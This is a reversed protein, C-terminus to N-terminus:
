GAACEGSQRPDSRTRVAYGSAGARSEAGGPGFRSVSQFGLVTLNTAGTEQCSTTGGLPRLRLGASGGSRCGPPKGPLLDFRLATHSATARGGASPVLFNHPHPVPRDACPRSSAFGSCPPDHEARLRLAGPAAYAPIRAPTHSTEHDPALEGGLSFIYNLRDRPILTGRFSLGPNRSRARAKM